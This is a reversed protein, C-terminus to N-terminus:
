LWALELFKIICLTEFDLNKYKKFLFCCTFLSYIFAIMHIIYDLGHSHSLNVLESQLERCECKTEPKFCVKCIKTKRIIDLSHRVKDQTEKHENAENGYWKLFEYIDTFLEKEILIAQNHDNFNAEVKKVHINWLDPYEGELTSPIKKPDLMSSSDDRAFEKKPQLEIVYPFRRQVALPCSFYHVANLNETNTTALVLQCRVPTRGKDQLEAQAPIFPINNITQIIEMVSPDGSTAVDPRMYAADDFLVCWHLTRFNSWYQDIGNRAYRFSPDTNLNFLNGYYGFLIEVFTSKGVSSGGYILLSFPSQRSKM